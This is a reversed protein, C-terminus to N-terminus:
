NTSFSNLSILIRMLMLSPILAVAPNLSISSSTLFSKSLSKSPFPSGLSCLFNCYVNKCFPKLSPNESNLFNKLIHTWSFSIAWSNHISLMILCRLDLSGKQLIIKLFFTLARILSLEALLFDWVRETLSSVGYADFYFFM